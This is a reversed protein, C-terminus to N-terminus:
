KKRGATKKPVAKKKEQMAQLKQELDRKEEEVRSIKQALSTELINREHEMDALQKKAQEYLFEFENDGGPVSKPDNLYLELEAIRRTKLLIEDSFSLKERKLTEVEAAHVAVLKQASALKEQAKLLKRGTDEIQASMLKQQEAMKQELHQVITIDTKPTQIRKEELKLYSFLATLLGVGMVNGLLVWWLPAHNHSFIAVLFALGFCTAGGITWNM